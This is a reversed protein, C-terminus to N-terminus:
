ANRAGGAEWLHRVSLVCVCVYVLSFCFFPGLRHNGRAFGEVSMGFKCPYLPNAIDNESFAAFYLMRSFLCFLSCIYFFYPFFKVWDFLM